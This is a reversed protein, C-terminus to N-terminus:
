ARGGGPPGMAAVVQLDLIYLPMQKQRDYWYGYDLWERILELPPQSLYEDKRPMNLDDIFM